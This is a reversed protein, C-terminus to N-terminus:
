ANDCIDGIANIDHIGAADDFLAMCVVDKVVRGVGIGLPKQGGQRGTCLASLAKVTYLAAYRVRSVFWATAGKM